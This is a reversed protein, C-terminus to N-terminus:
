PSNLKTSSLVGEGGTCGHSQRRLLNFGRAAINESLALHQDVEATSEHSWADRLSLRLIKDAVSM